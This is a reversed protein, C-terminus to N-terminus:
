VITLMSFFICFDATYDISNWYQEHFRCYSKFVADIVTDTFGTIYSLSITSIRYKSKQVIAFNGYYYIVTIFSAIKVHPPRPLATAFRTSVLYPLHMISSASVLLASATVAPSFNLMCWFLILCNIESLKNGLHLRM